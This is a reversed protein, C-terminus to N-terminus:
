KQEILSVWRAPIDYMSYGIGAFMPFEFDNSM